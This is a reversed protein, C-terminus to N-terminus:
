EETEKVIGRIVMDLEEASSAIVDLLEYINEEEIGKQKILKTYGLIRALPARVIHSQTWAIKRLKENQQRISFIYNKLLTMDQMAGIMRVPKSNSDFILFARDYIYKYTGNRCLFRYKFQTQIEKNKLVKDIKNIVKQFDDPHIKEEWWALINNIEFQDYGFMETIGSNYCMKDNIIDWDWVADSTAKTMIDYRAKETKSKEESLKQETIDIITDVCCTEGNENTFSVSYYQCHFSEGNKRIATLEGIVKGENELYKLYYNIHPDNNNVLEKIGMNRFEEASYGFSAIAANNADLISGNPFTLFAPHFSNTFASRYIDYDM